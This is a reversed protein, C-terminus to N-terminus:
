PTQVYGGTSVAPSHDENPSGIVAGLNEDRFQRDSFRESIEENGTGEQYYDDEGQNISQFRHRNNERPGQM